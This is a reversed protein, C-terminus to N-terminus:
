DTARVASFLRASRARPNGYIEERGPTTGVVDCSSFLGAALHAAFATQVRREEGSHFTLIAVRGGPVLLWPLTRLLQDLNEPERNTAMRLAMFVQAAPHKDRATRRRLASPEIGKARLVCDALERTTAPAAAKIAQAVELPRPEDGFDKLWGALTTEDTDAILQSATRGRTADMRMDLPGDRKFGFGREPRDLQMSSLGLDALLCHVGQLGEHALVKGAGAFNTHHATVPLGLGQLRALTLAQEAPDLDIGVVRGEPAVARALAEAHGGYGLTCDLVVEGPQPALAALVQPLLIPVHTGAPTRGQNRIKAAQGPYKAPNLEKYREGFGRPHTGQYRKRRPPKPPVDAMVQCYALAGSFVGPLAM